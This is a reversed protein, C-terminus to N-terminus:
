TAWVDLEYELERLLRTRDFSSFSRDTGKFVRNSENIFRPGFPLGKAASFSFFRLANKDSTNGM